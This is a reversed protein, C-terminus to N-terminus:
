TAYAHLVNVGIKVCVCVCMRGCECRCECVMVLVAGCGCGSCSSVISHLVGGRVLRLHVNKLLEYVEVRM